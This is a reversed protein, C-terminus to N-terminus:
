QEPCSACCWNSAWGLDVMEKADAKSYGLHWGNGDKYGCTGGGVVKKMEDRSLANVKNEGLNKKM